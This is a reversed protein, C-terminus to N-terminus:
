NLYLNMFDCNIYEGDIKIYGNFQGIKEFGYKKYLNIARDNDSRVSLHIIECEAVNEAFDIVAEMLRSGVGQGWYDKLVSIGLEGRHKIRERNVSSFSADGIIRGDCKAFFMASTTSNELSEIYKEESKVDFPLGEAGFTLNDSEGGVKKLYELVEGADSVKAKEITIDM